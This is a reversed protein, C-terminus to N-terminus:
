MPQRSRFAESLMVTRLVSGLSGNAVQAQQALYSAWNADDPQNMLRGIAYTMFKQTLCPGFRADKALAAGMQKAGNFATGDTLTGSADIASTGDMTRYSGTADFNELGFGLPDMISHCGSCAPSSRHAELSARLSLSSDLPLSSVNDPPPPITGCLLRSFIFDGRKVPSTRTPLSTTTLVSGLTLLGARQTASIDAKWTGDAGPTGTAALGYYKALGADVYTFNATLMASVPQSSALFDQIFNRAELRMSNTLTAAFTPFTKPDVQHGVISNFDLWAGAFQDLLAGSKPDALMRDIQAKVQDDTALQGADAAASLTPDPISGWLAFSLRTALEYANLRHTGTTGAPDTEVKFIFYPSMLVAALGAKLGDTATAGLTKASSVATMLADVQATTVPRRFARRAFASIITRACTDGGTTVNCTIVTSQRAAPAAFLEDMLTFAANEYSQVYTPSLSLSSGVTTFEAGLDDSPFATGPTLTTGLLDRVTNNYEASNLRRLTVVGPNVPATTPVQTSVNNTPVMTPTGGPTSTPTGGPTTGTTAGTPSGGGTPASTGSGSGSSGTGGSTAVPGTSGTTGDGSKGVVKGSCGGLSGALAIALAVTGFTNLRRLSEM